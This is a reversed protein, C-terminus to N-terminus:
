MKPELNNNEITDMFLLNGKKDSEILKPGTAFISDNIVIANRFSLVNKLITRIKEFKSSFQLCFNSLNQFFLRGNENFNKDM